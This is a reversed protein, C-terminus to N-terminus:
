RCSLKIPENTLKHLARTLIRGSVQGTQIDVSYFITDM